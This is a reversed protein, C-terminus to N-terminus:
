DLIVADNVKSICHVYVHPTLMCKSALKQQADIIHEASVYVTRMGRLDITTMNNDLDVSANQVIDCKFISKTPKKKKFWNFM